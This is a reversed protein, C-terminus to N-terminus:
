LSLMHEKPSKAKVMGHRAQQATPYTLLTLPPLLNKFSHFLAVGCSNKKKKALLFVLSKEISKEHAAVGSFSVLRTSLCLSEKSNKFKSLDM